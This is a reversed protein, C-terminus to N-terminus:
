NNIIWLILLTTLIASPLLVFLFVGRITQRVSVKPINMGQTYYFQLNTFNKEVSNVFVYPHILAVLTEVDGMTFVSPNIIVKGSFRDELMLRSHPSTGASISFREANLLSPLHVRHHSFYDKQILYENQIVLEETVQKITALVSFFALFLAIPLDISFQKGTTLQYILWLCLIILFISLTKMILLQSKAVHIKFQPNSM